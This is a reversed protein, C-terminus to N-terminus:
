TPPVIGRGISVRPASLSGDAAKNAQISVLAGPKVDARTAPGYTVIAANKPVILTKKGGKYTLTLTRGDVSAVASTVTANTMTSNPQLDFPRFGEGVGRQAAPFITIAIAEQDGNAMPMAAAGVYDGKKIDALSKKIVARVTYNPALQVTVDAGALTKVTITSGSVKEITGRVRVTPAAQAQAVSLGGALSFALGAVAMMHKM